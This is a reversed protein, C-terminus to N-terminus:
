KADLNSLGSILKNWKENEIVRAEERKQRDIRFEVRQLTAQEFIGSGILTHVESLANRLQTASVSVKPTAVQKAAVTMNYKSVFDARRAVKKTTPDLVIGNDLAVWAHGVDSVKGTGGELKSPIGIEALALHFFAAKEWCTAAEAHLMTGLSRVRQSAGDEESSPQVNSDFADIKKQKDYPIKFKFYDLLYLLKDTLDVDTRAARTAENFQAELYADNDPDVRLRSKKTSTEFFRDDEGVMNVNQGLRQIVNGRAPPRLLARGPTPKLQVTHAVRNSDASSPAQGRRPTQVQRTGYGKLSPPTGRRPNEPANGTVPGTGHPAHLPLASKKQLCVPVPQPRYVPSPTERTQRTGQQRPTSEKTQLVKPVPQPRYASPAVPKRGSQASLPTQTHAT